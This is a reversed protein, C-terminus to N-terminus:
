YVNELLLLRMDYRSHPLLGIIMVGYKSSRGDERFPKLIVDINKDVDMTTVYPLMIQVPNTVGYGM